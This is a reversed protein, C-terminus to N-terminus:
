NTKIVVKGVLKRESLFKIADKADELNFEKCVYPSFHGELRLYAWTHLALSPKEDNEIPQFLDFVVSEQFIM